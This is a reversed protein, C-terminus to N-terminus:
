ENLVIKMGDEFPTQPKWGLLERAKSNDALTTRYEGPREPLHEVQGGVLAAVENVSHNGGSGINFIGSEPSLMALLNAEVVDGVWTFDRRQEGDGVVTLPNELKKQDIFLSIVAAYTGNPIMRTGYVNFYRLCITPLHYTDNFIKCYFECLAKNAAYPSGPNIKMDEQLPEDVDRGYVSSSSSLVFKRVRRKKAEWLLNLTGRTNVDHYLKPDQISPQIRALAATHLVFEVGRMAEAVVRENRIDGEIFQFVEPTDFHKKINERKGTSLNDLVVVFYGRRICEDVLHGGIFGAGGTILVKQM